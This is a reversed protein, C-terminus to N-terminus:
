EEKPKEVAIGRLEFDDFNGNDDFTGLGVEGWAFTKDVATMYPKKMNDFYVLITGDAVRRVVKVVHWKEDWALKMNRKKTIPTRPKANVIFIQNANPDKADAGLGLHVYYFRSRSQKGWFLCLDRHAGAKVNTSQVRVTMEFDGVTVDKLWAISHPSRVRPKYKAKGTVRFAKGGPVDIIKWVQKEPLRKKDTPEWRDAGKEFDEKVLLPLQAPLDGAAMREAYTPGFPSKMGESKTFAAELEAMLKKMEAEETGAKEADELRHEADGPILDALAKGYANLAKKKKGRVHCAACGTMKLSAALAESGGPKVYRKAFAETFPKFALAPRVGGVLVAVGCILLLCASKM